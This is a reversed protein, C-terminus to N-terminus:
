ARNHLLSLRVVSEINATENFLHILPVQWRVNSFPPNNSQFLMKRNIIDSASDLLNM